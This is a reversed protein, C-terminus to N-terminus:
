QCKELHGGQNEGEVQETSSDKSIVCAKVLITSHWHLMHQLGIDTQGDSTLTRDFHNFMIVYVISRLLM